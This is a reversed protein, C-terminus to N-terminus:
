CITIDFRTLWHADYTSLHGCRAVLAAELEAMDPLARNAVPKHLLLWMREAPQLEPTYAPLLVLHMDAPVKSTGAPISDLEM